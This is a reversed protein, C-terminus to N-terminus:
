ARSKGRRPAGRAGDGTPRRSSGKGKGHGKPHAKGERAALRSALGRVRQREEDALALSPLESRDSISVEIM